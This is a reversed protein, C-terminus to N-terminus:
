SFKVVLQPPSVLTIQNMSVETGSDPHYVHCFLIGARAYKGQFTAMVTVRIKCSLFSLRLFNLYSTWLWVSFVHSFKSKKQPPPTSPRLQLVEIKM